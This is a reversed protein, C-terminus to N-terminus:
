TLTTHGYYRNSFTSPDKNDLTTEPILNSITQANPFNNKSIKELQFTVHSFGVFFLEQNKKKQLKFVFLRLSKFSESNAIVLLTLIKLNNQGKQANIYM